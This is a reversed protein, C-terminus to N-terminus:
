RSVKKSATTTSQTDPKLAATTPQSSPDNIRHAENFDKREDDDLGTVAAPVTITGISGGFILGLYEQRPQYKLPQITWRSVLDKEFPNQKAM